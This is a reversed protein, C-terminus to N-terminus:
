EWLLINGSDILANIERNKYLVDIYYRHGSVGSIAVACSERKEKPKPSCKSAVYGHERCKFRKTEQDKISCNIGM